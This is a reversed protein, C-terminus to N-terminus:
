RTGRPGESRATPPPMLARVNQVLFMGGLLLPWLVGFDGRLMGVFGGNALVYVILAGAILASVVHAPKRGRGGTLLDLTRALVNGGDLPLMPILNLVGWGVNVWVFQHVIALATPSLAVRPSALWVAAGVLMGTMPGALSILLFPGPGRRPGASGSTLGGMGHLDIPPTLGFARGTLAHGLEHVLVSVFVIIVWSVMLVGSSGGGLMLAMLFFIYHIRVPIRGLRFTFV